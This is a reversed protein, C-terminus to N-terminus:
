MPKKTAFAKIVESIYTYALLPFVVFSLKNFHYAEEFNFHLLQFIANGMGCGYCEIDSFVKSICIFEKGHLYNEPLGLLIFPIGVLAIQKFRLFDFRKPITAM